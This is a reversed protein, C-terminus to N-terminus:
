GTLPNAVGTAGPWIMSYRTGSMNSRGQACIQDSYKSFFMSFGLSVSLRPKLHSPPPPRSHRQLSSQRRRRADHGCETRHYCHPQQRGRSVSMVRIRHVVAVHVPHEGSHDNAHDGVGGVELHVENRQVLLAVREDAVAFAFGEDPDNLHLAGPLGVFVADRLLAEWLARDEAHAEMWSPIALGGPVSALRAQELTRLAGLGLRAPMAVRNRAGFRESGALQRFLRRRRMGSRVARAAAGYRM